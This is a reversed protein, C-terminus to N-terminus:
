VNHSLLRCLPCLDETESKTNVHLYNKKFCCFLGRYRYYLQKITLNDDRIKPSHIMDISQVDAIELEAELTELESYGKKVMKRAYPSTEDLVYTSADLIDELFYQDM